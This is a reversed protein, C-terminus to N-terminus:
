SKNSYVIHSGVIYPCVSHVKMHYINAQPYNSLVPVHLWFQTSNAIYQHQTTVSYFVTHITFLV